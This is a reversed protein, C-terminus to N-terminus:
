LNFNGRKKAEFPNYFHYGINEETYKYFPTNDNGHPLEEDEEPYRLFKKYETLLTPCNDLVWQKPATVCWNAGMDVVSRVVVLKNEKIWNDNDFVFQECSVWSKYPEVNPYDEEPMWNNLEFYVIEM